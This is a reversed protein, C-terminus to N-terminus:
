YPLFKDATCTSSVIIIETRYHFENSLKTCVFMPTNISLANGEVQNLSLRFPGISLMCNHITVMNDLLSALLM